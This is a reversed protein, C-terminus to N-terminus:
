LRYWISGNETDKLGIGHATLQERLKDSMEWDKHLRAEDRKATVEKLETSIDASSTLQLGLLEDLWSLFNMLQESEQPLVGGALADSLNSLISLAEPTNLDNQLSSIVSSKAKELKDTISSMREKPQFRLDAMAQLDLRRQRAASLLQWTFNAETRYHSQLIFMRLDQPLFGKKEIDHLTFTNGLSKSIKTGDVQLFNSHLWYRAFPKGTASESQAIENTHHVPIHDIGGTHIDITEGLFRMALASCEIHWGPFGSGWPSAWEMDRKKGKPSFKWLAFDTLHKKQGLDIRAGAQMGATDLRAMKGYDAFKTSDFYVGDDTIYTYGKAELKQILKIQDDIYDTARVLHDFPISINLLRLSKKFDDIYFNAVEWASKGERRAGKELKDEGEDADSTLHGVDTINMYWKTDYGSAKLTRALIDWRVYIAYNGIHQFDYVTPGCTYLRVKASEITNLEETSRSPTNYLKM